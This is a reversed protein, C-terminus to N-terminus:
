AETMRYLGRGVRVFRPRRNGTSLLANKISSKSILRGLQQEVALHIDRYRMPQDATNLIAIIANQVIGCREHTELSASHRPRRNGSAVQDIKEALKSLRAQIQQNSLAERLRVLGESILGLAKETEGPKFLDSALRHPPLCRAQRRESGSSWKSGRKYTSQNTPKM